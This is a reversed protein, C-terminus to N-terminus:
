LLPLWNLNAYIDRNTSNTQLVRISVYRFMLSSSFKWNLSLQAQQLLISDCVCVYAVLREIDGM